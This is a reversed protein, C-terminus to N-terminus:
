TCLVHVCTTWINLHRTLTDIHLTCMSGQEFLRGIQGMFM